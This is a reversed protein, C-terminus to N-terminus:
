YELHARYGTDLDSEINEIVANVVGAAANKFSQYGPLRNRNTYLAVGVSIASMIALTNEPVNAQYIQNLTTLPTGAYGTYNKWFDAESVGPQIQHCIIDYTACPTQSVFLNTFGTMAANISQRIMEFM